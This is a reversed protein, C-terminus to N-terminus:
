TDSQIFQISHTALGRKSSITSDIKELQDISVAEWITIVIGYSGSSGIM